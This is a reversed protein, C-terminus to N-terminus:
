EAWAPCKGDIWAMHKITETQLGYQKRLRKVSQRGMLCYNWDDDEPEPLHYLVIRDPKLRNLFEMGTKGGLQYLNLFAMDVHDTVRFIDGADTEFLEADGAIFFTETGMQLILSEHPDARYIEGDHITKMTILNADGIKIRDMRASVKEKKVNNKGWSPGYLSIEKHNELFGNVKEECFHDPHLHTFFLADTRAFIGARRNLDREWEESMESMGVKRGNHIGDILIGTTGDYFFLGTNRAHYIVTEM